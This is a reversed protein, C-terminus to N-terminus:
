VPFGEYYVWYTRIRGPLPHGGVPLSDQTAHLYGWAAFRLCRTHPGHHVAELSQLPSGVDHPSRFAVDETSYLGPM